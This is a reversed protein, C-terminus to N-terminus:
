FCINVESKFIHNLQFSNANTEHKVAALALLVATPLLLSKNAQTTHKNDCRIVNYKSIFFRRGLAAAPVRSM